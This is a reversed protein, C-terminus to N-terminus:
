MEKQQMARVQGSEGPREVWQIQRGQEQTQVTKEKERMVQNIHKEKLDWSSTVEEQFAEWMGLSLHQHEQIM